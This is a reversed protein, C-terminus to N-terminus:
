QIPSHGATQCFDHQQIHEHRFIDKGIIKRTLWVQLLARDDVIALGETIAIDYLVNAHPPLYWHHDDNDRVTPENTGPGLTFKAHSYV